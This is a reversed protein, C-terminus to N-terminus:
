GIQINVNTDGDLPYIPTTPEPLVIPEPETTFKWDVVGQADGFSNYPTVRWVYEKAYSLHGSIDTTLNNGFDFDDIIATGNYWLSLRYGDADNVSNWVLSSTLSVNTQNNFPNVPTTPQPPTGKNPDVVTKFTWTPCNVAEGHQNYPVVKWTYTTDYEVGELKFFTDVTDVILKETPLGVELTYGDVNNVPAWELVIYKTPDPPIIVGNYEYPGIDRVGSIPNDDFDSTRANPYEIGRNIASSGEMIHYD